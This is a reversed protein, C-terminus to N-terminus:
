LFLRFRECRGKRGHARKDKMCANCFCHGCAANLCTWFQTERCGALGEGCKPCFRGEPDREVLSQVLFRSHKEFLAPSVATRVFEDPLVTACGAVFCRLELAGNCIADDLFAAWCDACCGHGCKVAVLPVDEFCVSCTSMAAAISTDPLSFHTIM